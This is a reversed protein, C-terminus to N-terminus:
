TKVRYTKVRDPYVRYPKLTVQNRRVSVDLSSARERRTVTVDVM